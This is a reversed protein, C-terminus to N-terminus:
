PDDNRGQTLVGVLHAFSHKNASDTAKFDTCGYWVGSQKRKYDIVETLIQWSVYM